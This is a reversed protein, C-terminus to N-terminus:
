IRVGIAKFFDQQSGLVAKIVGLGLGTKKSVYIEMVEKNWGVKRLTELARAVKELKDQLEIVPEAKEIVEIKNEKVWKSIQMGIIGQEDNTQLIYRM